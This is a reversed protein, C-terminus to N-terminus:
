ANALAIGTSAKRYHQAAILLLGRRIIRPVNVSGGVAVTETMPSLNLDHSVLLALVVHNAPYSHRQPPSLSM